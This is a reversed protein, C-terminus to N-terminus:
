RRGRSGGRRNWAAARQQGSRGYNAPNREAARRNAQGRSRAGAGTGRETYGSTTAGGGGGEYLRGPQTFNNTNFPNKPM